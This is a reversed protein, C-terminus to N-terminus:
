AFSDANEAFTGTRHVSFEIFLFEAAKAPQVGIKARMENRDIVEPPNLDEDCKVFFDYIGRDRKVAELVDSALRIFETRLADDHPDFLIRRSRRRINKEIYLLMRRVNVRDLATPLRQLTKQGWITFNDLDAFNVVPNIANRNGYMADREDLNAKSYVDLVNPVVGRIEGAPAFWPRSITDSRAYAALVSGSPPVWVDIRNHTDRQKLWPWYLAAFDTDLKTTNLPHTGNHWHQIETPTMGFPPDIIAFCDQRQDQCLSILATVVATSSHGPVAVLDIDVQEPEALAGMGTSAAKSGILLSDQADPDSPIGNTGGSLSYTGPLPLAPTETNDVIRIYKSVLAMYTENYFKSTQDKVISAWSEVQVGDNFVKVAFSGSRIDNSVIVQTQNGATGPSDALVEFTYLGDIAANGTVYGATYTVDPSGGTVTIPSDGDATAGTFGFLGAATSTVKVLIQADRGAHLTTLKLRNSANSAVFGGPIEGNSITNNILTVVQSITHVAKPFNVLQVVNDIAVNDTGDLVIQLQPEIAFGSFDYTGAVGSGSAAYRDDEGTTAAPTMLTGLGILSSPGYIQSQVSVLELSSGPGYSFTTEVGVTGDDSVFFGIGDDPILQDNLEDVVDAVTKASADAMVVLLKSALIGNLRWRFFQNTTFTFPGADNGIIKVPGGAAPIQVSATVAADGSVTSTDGCRVIWCSDSVSLYQEAAYLLYPDCTAPAPFGFTTHLETVSIIRTPVNIPGKTAFGVLGAGALGSTRDVFSFDKEAIRVGPSITSSAPFGGSIPM